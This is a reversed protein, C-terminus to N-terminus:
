VSVFSGADHIFDTPDPTDTRDSTYLSSAAWTTFQEANADLYEIAKALWQQATARAERRKAMIADHDGTNQDKSAANRQFRTSVLGGDVLKLQVDHSQAITFCALAPRLYGLLTNWQTTSPSTSGSGSDAGTGQFAICEALVASGIGHAVDFEQARLMAPKLDLLTTRSGAIQYGQQFEAVTRVLTNNFATRAASGDWGTPPTALEELKELMADLAKMGYLHLAEQLDGVQWQFPTRYNENWVTHLGASGVQVSLIPVLSATALMAVAEQALELVANLDADSSSAAAAADLTNYLTTGILPKLHEREAAKVRPSLLEWSFDYNVPTFERFTATTTILM